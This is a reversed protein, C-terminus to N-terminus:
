SERIKLESISSVIIDAFPELKKRTGSGSLVAICAKVGANRGMKMDNVSDGVIVTDEPKSVTQKLAAFIMDPAPKGSAVDDSGVIADFFSDIGLAKFSEQTRKRIDTSAIALKFGHKKLMSLTELTGNLLVTGYTPKMSNDAEDYAAQVMQNSEDWSYGNLYFSTAAVLIEENCAISALPGNEDVKGNELDVGVIREWLGSVDKGGRRQICDRRAKARERSLQHLDVLTGDKDFVILRCEIEKNGILLTTM